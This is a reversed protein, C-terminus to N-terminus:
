RDYENRNKHYARKEFPRAKEASIIRINEGNRVTYSVRLLRNTSLGILVYRQESLDSHDGDFEEIAWKDYFALTAEDFSVGDHKEINERAKQENWEFEM